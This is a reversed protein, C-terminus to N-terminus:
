GCRARSRRLDRSFSVDPSKEMLARQKMMDEIM